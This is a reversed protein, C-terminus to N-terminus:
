HLTPSEYNELKWFSMEEKTLYLFRVFVIFCYCLSVPTEKYGKNRCLNNESIFM